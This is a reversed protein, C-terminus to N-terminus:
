GGDQKGTNPETLRKKPRWPVVTRMKRRIRLDGKRQRSRQTSKQWENKLYLWDKLTGHEAKKM